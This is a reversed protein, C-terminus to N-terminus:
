LEFVSDDIPNNIQLEKFYIQTYDGSPDILKVGEIVFNDKHFSLVIETFLNLIVPNTPLLTAVYHDDNQAYTIEFDGNELIKGNISHIILANLKEFLVNSELDVTSKKGEDNIYLTNNKFIASYQYPELYAWKIKDPKAFYFKGSSKINNELFSVHKQQVFRGSVTNSSVAQQAVGTRFIKIEKPAMLENQAGCVLSGFLFLFSLFKAIYM